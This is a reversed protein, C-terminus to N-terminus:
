DVIVLREFAKIGEQNALEMIYLGSPINLIFSDQNGNGGTNARFVVKGTMSHITLSSNKFQDPYTITLTNRVPNPWYSFVQLDHNVLGVFNMDICESTDTCNGETIIVAYSGPSSPAFTRGTEGSIPQGSTCDMWQFQVNLPSVSAVLTNNNLASVSMDGALIEVKVRLRTKSECGQDVNTAYYYEGDILFTASGLPADSTDTEYWNVGTGNVILDSVTSQGCFTQLTDGAPPAPSDSAVLVTDTSSNSLADTVTVVFTDACLNNFSGGGSITYSYPQLGGAAGKSVSGDCEGPCSENTVNTTLTLNSVSSCCDGGANISQSGNWCGYQVRHAYLTSNPFYGLMYAEIQDITNCGGQSSTTTCSTGCIIYGYGNPNTLTVTPRINIATSATSPVGSITTNTGSNCHNNSGNYGAYVVGTVNNVYTGSLSINVSEYSVVGIKLNPINVDVNINLNGGDYNTFIMLNGNLDCYTNQALTMGLLGLSLLLSTIKKM